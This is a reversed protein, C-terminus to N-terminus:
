VANFSPFIGIIATKLTNRLASTSFIESIQWHFLEFTTLNIALKSVTLRYILRLILKKEKIIIPLKWYFSHYLIGRSAENFTGKKSSFTKKIQILLTLFLKSNPPIQGGGARRSLGLARKDFLPAM